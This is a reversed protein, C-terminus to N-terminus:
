CAADLMVDIYVYQPPSAREAKVVVPWIACKLAPALLAKSKRM